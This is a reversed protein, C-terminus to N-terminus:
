KIYNSKFESNLMDIHKNLKNTKSMEDLYKKNEQSWKEEYVDSINGKFDLISDGYKWETDIIGSTQYKYFLPQIVFPIFIVLTTYYIVKLWSGVDEMEFLSVWKKEYKTIKYHTTYGDDYLQYIPEKNTYIKTNLPRLKIKIFGKGKPSILYWIMTLVLNFLVYVIIYILIDTM